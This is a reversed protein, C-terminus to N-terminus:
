SDDTEGPEACRRTTGQPSTEEQTLPASHVQERVIYPRQNKLVAYIRTSLKRAVAVIAIRAGRGRPNRRCVSRYFERLEADQRIASWAAQILKSRLRGDGLRTISGRDVSDGTSNETPVLGLFSGLQRVNDIERWDGIRALLQSAVIWGIGPISMLYAISQSLEVDEKCFWRIEKTSNVVQKKFLRGYTRALLMFCSPPFVSLLTPIESGCKM